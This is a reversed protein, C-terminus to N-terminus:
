LSNPDKDPKFLEALEKLIIPSERRMIQLAVAPSGTENVQVDALFVSEITKRMEKRINQRLTVARKYYNEIKNIQGGIQDIAKTRNINNFGLYIDDISQIKINETPVGLSVSKKFKDVEIKQRKLSEEDPELM